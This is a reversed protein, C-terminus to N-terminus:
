GGLHTLSRLYRTGRAVAEAPSAGLRWANIACQAAVSRDYPNIGLRLGCTRVVERIAMHQREARPLEAISLVSM